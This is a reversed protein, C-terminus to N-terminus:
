WAFAASEEATMVSLLMEECAAFFDGDPEVTGDGIMDVVTPMIYDVVSEAEYTDRGLSELYAILLTRIDGIGM